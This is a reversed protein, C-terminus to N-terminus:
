RKCSMRKGNRGCREDLSMLYCSIAFIILGVFNTVPFFESDSMILMLGAMFGFSALISNM